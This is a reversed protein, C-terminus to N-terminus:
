ADVEEWAGAVGAYHHAPVWVGNIGVFTECTEWVGDVGVNARNRTIDPLTM